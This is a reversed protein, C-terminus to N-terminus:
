NENPGVGKNCSVRFVWYRSGIFNILSGILTATVKSVALSQELTDHMGSLILSVVVLSLLNVCTFKLPEKVVQKRGKQQFTWQRNLLYSNVIGCSYSIWQAPFLPVGVMVLLTFIMIDIGTNLSGVALFKLAQIWSKNM